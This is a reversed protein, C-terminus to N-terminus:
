DIMHGAREMANRITVDNTFQLKGVRNGKNVAMLYGMLRPNNDYHFYDCVGFGALDLEMTLDAASLSRDYANLLMHVHWRSVLEENGVVHEDRFAWQHRQDLSLTYFYKIRGRTKPQPTFGALRDMRRRMRLFRHRQLGKLFQQVKLSADGAAIPTLFTATVFYQFAHRQQILADHLVQQRAADREPDVDKLHQEILGERILVPM